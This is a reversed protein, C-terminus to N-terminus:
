ASRGERSGIFFGSKAGRVCARSSSPMSGEAVPLGHTAAIEDNVKKESPANKGNTGHITVELPLTIHHDIPSAPTDVSATPPATPCKVRRPTTYKASRASTMM